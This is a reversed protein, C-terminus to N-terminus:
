GDGIVGNQVFGHYHRVGEDDFNVSPSVTINPPEGTVTWGDYYGKPTWERQDAHECKYVKKGCRTCDNSYCQGDVVFYRPSASAADPMALILPPRQANHTFYYSTLHLRRLTAEDRVPVGDRHYYCMDGVVLKEFAVVGGEEPGRLPPNELFRIPTTM